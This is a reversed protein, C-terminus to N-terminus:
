LHVFTGDSRMEYTYAIPIGYQGVAHDVSSGSTAYLVELSNGVEYERGYKRAIWDASENGIAMHDDFTAPKEGNGYPALILLGYSHFALFVDFKSANEKMFNDTNRTEVESLPEPGGYTYSCKVRSAGGTMWKYAFNRNSDAGHCIVSHTNSRTSRWM